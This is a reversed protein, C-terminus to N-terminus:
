QAPVTGLRETLSTKPENFLRAYYTANTMVNKVYTRTENYPITEAYIAGELPIDARWRRARTPGANYGTTALVEDGMRNRIDGLFWTGMHINGSLTHLETHSIGLKAAIERATAPMVQMLGTACVHSQVGVMFRSEQRILGYAWAPDINAEKAYPAVIDQFPAIYLLQYNTKHQTREASYIGMEYFGTEHALRSSALLAEDDYHRVAYRWERQAQQRMPWNDTSQATQFLILARNINQDNNVKSFQHQDIDNSINRTNVTDGIAEKALVAYFDHESQALRSFRQQAQQPQGLVKESRALWYQWANEQQISPPMRRIIEALKAWQQLRLACRAYWRWMEESLQEPDAKDFYNLATATNQRYAQMLGLQAWAFGTQATTLQSSRQLLLNAANAQTSGNKSIIPYLLAEQAGRSDGTSSNLPDPLPSGLAQALARANTIQNITLLGRVRRWTDETNIQQSAAAQELWRNCGEPLSSLSRSLNNLLSQNSDIAGLGAYCQTERERDSQDLLAYQQQFLPWNGEKGLKQLWLNRVTNKMASDPQQALFQAPSVDDNNKIASLVQQYQQFGSLIQQTTKASFAKPIHPTRPESLPNLPVEPLHSCASSTLLLCATLILSSTSFPRQM